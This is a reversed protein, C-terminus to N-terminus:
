DQKKKTFKQLSLVEFVMTIIFGILFTFALLKPDGVLKLICLVALVLFIFFSKAMKLMMGWVLVNGTTLAKQDLFLTLLFNVLILSASVYLETSLFSSTMAYNLLSAAILAVSLVMFSIPSAIKKNESMTEMM